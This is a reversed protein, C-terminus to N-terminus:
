ATERSARQLDTGTSCSSITTSCPRLRWRGKPQAAATCCTSWLPWAACRSACCKHIKPSMKPLVSAGHACCLCSIRWQTSHSPSCAMRRCVCVCVFFCCSSDAFMETLMFFDSSTPIFIHTVKCGSTIAGQLHVLRLLLPYPIRESEQLCDVCVALLFSMYLTFPYFWLVSSQSLNRCSYSICYM